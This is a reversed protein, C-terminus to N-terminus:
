KLFFSFVRASQFMVGFSNNAKYSSPSEKKCLKSGANMPLFILFFEEGFCHRSRGRITNKGVLIIAYVNNVKARFCPTPGHGTEIKTRWWIKQLLRSRVIGIRGFRDRSCASPRLKSWFSTLVKKQKLRLKVQDFFTKKIRNKPCLTNESCIHGM